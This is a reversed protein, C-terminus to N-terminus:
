FCVSIRKSVQFKEGLNQLLRRHIGETHLKRGVADEVGDDGDKEISSKVFIRLATKRTRLDPISSFNPVCTEVIALGASGPGM